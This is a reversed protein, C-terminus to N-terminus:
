SSVPLLVGTCGLRYRPLFPPFAILDPGTGRPPSESSFLAPVPLSRSQATLPSLWLTPVETRADLVPCVLGSACLFPRASPQEAAQWTESPRRPVRELGAYEVDCPLAPDIASSERPVWLGGPGPCLRPPTNAAVRATGGFGLVGLAAAGGCSVARHASLSAGGPGWGGQLAARCPCPRGHPVFPVKARPKRWLALPCPPCQVPRADSVAWVEPQLWHTGVAQVPGRAEAGRGRCCPEWHLSCPFCVRVSFLALEPRVRPALDWGWYPLSPWQASPFDQKVGLELELGEM